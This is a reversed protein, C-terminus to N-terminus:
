VLGLEPITYKNDDKVYKAIIRPNPKESL